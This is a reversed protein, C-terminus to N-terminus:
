AQSFNPPEDCFLNWIYKEDITKNYFNILM